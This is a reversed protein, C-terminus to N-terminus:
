ARIGYDHIRRYITARSIGLAKAAREKVGDADALAAVIADREISELPTLVRRTTSHLDPPLEDRGVPASSRPRHRVRHMASRLQAVNGPWEARVLVRLADASCTGGDLFHSALEPIDDPRLRLAPVDLVPSVRGAVGDAGDGPGRTAVVWTSTRDCTDLLGALLRDDDRGLEDAHAVVVQRADALAAALPSPWTHPTRGDLVLTRHEPRLRVLAQALALKGTGAEGRLTFWTGSARLATARAVLQRWLISNGVLGPLPLAASAAGAPAPTEGLRVRVVVGRARGRVGVALCHVRAPRGGSLVLDLTRRRGAPLLAAIEGAHAVLAAQDAVDLERRARHNLLVADDTVAVVADSSRRCTERYATFVALEDPRAAALMAQQIQEATSEALTLLLADTDKRWCTLDLIGAIRGSAPHRIPVAACALRELNEAYHEHGLVETARGTELATGIGNTGAFREAYTFGPALLVHDLQREFGADPTRRSLVLGAPDTLIISVSQGTLREALRNLVPDASRVLPDGDPDTGPEAVYPVQVKDAAIGRERSREWSALIAPRVRNHEPHGATLFRVRNVACDDADPAIAM